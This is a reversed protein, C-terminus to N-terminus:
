ESRQGVTLLVPFARLSGDAIPREVVHAVTSQSKSLHAATMLKQMDAASFGLHFVGAPDPHFSGDEADLDALALRGGPALLAALNEVLAVPDEIHHLTMSSFILDFGDEGLEECTLDRRLTRIGDIGADQLKGELVQLMGASTDVALIQGVHTRMAVTVLGTGCGLELTRMGERLPVFQAIARVVALALETRMPNEDWTRAAADFDRKRSTM